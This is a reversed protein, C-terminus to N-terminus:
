CELQLVIPSWIAWRLARGRRAVARRTAAGADAAAKSASSKVGVWATLAADSGPAEAPGCAEAVEDARTEARLASSFRAM